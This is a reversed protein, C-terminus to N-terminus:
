SWSDLFFILYKWCFLFIFILTLYWGRRLPCSLFPFLCACDMWCNLNSRIFRLNKYAVFHLSWVKVNEFILALYKYTLNDLIGVLYLSHCGLFVYFSTKRTLALESILNMWYFWPLFFFTFKLCIFSLDHVIIIIKVQFYILCSLVILNM